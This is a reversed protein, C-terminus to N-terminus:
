IEVCDRNINFWTLMRGADKGQGELLKLPDNPFKDKM